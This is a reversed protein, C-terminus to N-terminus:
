MVGTEGSDKIAKLLERDCEDQNDCAADLNDQVIRMQNTLDNRRDVWFKRINYAMRVNEIHNNLMKLDIM